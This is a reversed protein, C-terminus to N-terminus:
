KGQLSQEEQPALEIMVMGLSTDKIGSLAKLPHEVMVVTKIGVVTVSIPYLAKPKQVERVDTDM